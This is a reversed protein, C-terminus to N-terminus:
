VGCQLFEWIYVSCIGLYISFLNGFIYQVFEWIYVSCIGLYISFVKRSSGVGSIYVLIHIYLNGCTAVM